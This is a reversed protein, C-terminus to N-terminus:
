KKKIKKSLNEASFIFKKEKSLDLKIHFEKEIDVIINLIDFSDLIGKRFLDDKNKFNIKKYKKIIKVIKNLDSKNM